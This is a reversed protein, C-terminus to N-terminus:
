PVGSFKTSLKPSEAANPLREVRSEAKPQVGRANPGYVSPVESMLNLCGFETCFFFFSKVLKQWGVSTGIMAIM